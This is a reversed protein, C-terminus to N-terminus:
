YSLLGEYGCDCYPAGSDKATVFMRLERFTYDNSHERLHEIREKADMWEWTSNAEEMELESWDEECLVPYNELADNIEQGKKETDSEKRVTLAEWWGCAWHGFRHIEVDESEGGLQDLAVRWNSEGLTSSDRSRTLVVLLNKEPTEGMYNDYSDLGSPNSAIEYLTKM